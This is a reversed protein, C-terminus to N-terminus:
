FGFGQVMHPQFKRVGHEVVVDSGHVAVAKSVRFWHVAVARSLQRRYVDVAGSM